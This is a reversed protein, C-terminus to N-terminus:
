LENEKKREYRVDEMWSDDGAIFYSSNETIQQEFEEPDMEGIEMRLEVIQNYNPALPVPRGLAKLLERILGSTQFARVNECLLEGALTELVEDGPHIEDGMLDYNM